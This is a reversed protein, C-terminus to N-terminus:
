EKNQDSSNCNLDIPIVTLSHALRDINWLNEEVKKEDFIRGPDGEPNQRFFVKM